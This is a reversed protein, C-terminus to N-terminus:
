LDMDFYVKEYESQRKPTKITKRIWFHTNIGEILDGYNLEKWEEDVSPCVGEKKYTTPLIYFGDLATRELVSLESLKQATIKIKEKVFDKM